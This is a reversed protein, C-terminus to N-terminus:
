PRENAFEAKAMYQMMTDRTQSDESSCRDRTASSPRSGTTRTSPTPPPAPCAEQGLKFFKASSKAKSTSIKSLSKWKPPQAAHLPLHRHMAAQDSIELRPHAPVQCRFNGTVEYRVHGDKARDASPSTLTSRACTPITYTRQHQNAHGASSQEVSHHPPQEWVLGPPARLATAAPQQRQPPVEIDTGEKEIAM